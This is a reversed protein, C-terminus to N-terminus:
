RTSSWIKPVTMPIQSTFKQVNFSELWIAHRSVDSETTANTSLPVHTAPSSPQSSAMPFPAAPTPHAKDGIRHTSLSSCLWLPLLWFKWWIWQKTQIAEIKLSAKTDVSAINIHERKTENDWSLISRWIGHKDYFNPRFSTCSKIYFFRNFEVFPLM